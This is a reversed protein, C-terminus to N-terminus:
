WYIFNCDKEILKCWTILCCDGSIIEIKNCTQRRGRIIPEACNNKLLGSCFANFKVKRIDGMFWSLQEVLKPSCNNWSYRRTSCNLQFIMTEGTFSVTSWNSKGTTFKEICIHNIVCPLRLVLTFHMRGQSACDVSFFEFSRKQLRNQSPNCSWM